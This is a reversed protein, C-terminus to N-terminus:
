RGLGGEAATAADRFQADLPLYGRYRDFSRLLYWYFRCREALAAKGGKAQREAHVMVPTLRIIHLQAEAADRWDRILEM